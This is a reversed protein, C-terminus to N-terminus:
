ETSSTFTLYLHLSLYNENWIRKGIERSWLESRCKNQMFSLSINNYRKNRLSYGEIMCFRIHYYRLVMRFKRHRPQLPNPQSAQYSLWVKSFSIMPSIPSAPFAILSSILSFSHLIRFIQVRSEEPLICCKLFNLLYQSNILWKRMNRQQRILACWTIWIGSKDSLM